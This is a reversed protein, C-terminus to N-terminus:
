GLVVDRSALSQGFATGAVHRCVLTTATRLDDTVAASNDGDYFMREGALAALSVMVQMEIESNWCHVRDEAEGGSSASRSGPDRCEVTVVDVDVVAATGSFGVEHPYPVGVAATGARSSRLRYGVVTHCAQHLALSHREAASYNRGGRVGYLTSQGARALLLDSWTISGRGAQRAIVFADDVWRRVDAGTAGPSAIAM